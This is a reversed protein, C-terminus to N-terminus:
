ATRHPVPCPPGHAPVGSRRLARRANSRRVLMFWVIVGPVIFFLMGYVYQWLLFRPLYLAYVTAAGILVGSLASRPLTYLFLDLGMVVCGLVFMCIVMWVRGGDLLFFGPIGPSYPAGNFVALDM